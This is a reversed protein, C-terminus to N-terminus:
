YKRVEWVITNHGLHALSGVARSCVTLEIMHDPYDEFLQMINEYSNPDCYHRLIMNARLGHIHQVGEHRMAERMRMPTFNCMFYLGQDTRMLEGQVVTLTDQDELVENWYIQAPAWKGGNVVRSFEAMAQHLTLDKKVPGDPGRFRMMLRGTFGSEQIERLSNWTRLNNGFYGKAFMDIM